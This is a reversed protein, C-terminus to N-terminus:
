IKAKKELKEEIIRDIEDRTVFRSRIPNYLDLLSELEKLEIKKASKEMNKNLRLVESRINNLNDTFNKVDISIQDITKKLMNMEDIMRGELSEVRAVVGEMRQELVRARRTNDNIRNVIEINFAQMDAKPKSEFVM